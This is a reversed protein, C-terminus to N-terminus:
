PRHQIQADPFDRALERLGRTTTVTRAARQFDAQRQAEKADAPLLSAWGVTVVGAAVSWTSIGERRPRHVAFPSYSVTPVHSREPRRRERSVSALRAASPPAM